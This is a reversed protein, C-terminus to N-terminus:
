LGLGLTVATAVNSYGSQNGVTDKARVRYRYTTNAALGSDDFSATAVTAVQDYATCLIGQCREVLYTKAGVGGTSATWSLRVQASGPATASANSPATLPALTVATAVNSYAGLNKAADTARVRYSYSTASSLGTDSYSTGSVSAHVSPPFNQTWSVHYPWELDSKVRSKM